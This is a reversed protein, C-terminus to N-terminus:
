EKTEKYFDDRFDIKQEKDLIKVKNWDFNHDLSIRHNSIVSPSGSKKNIDSSYEAIRTKL